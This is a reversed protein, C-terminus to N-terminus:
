ESVLQEMQKVIREIEDATLHRPASLINESLVTANCVTVGCLTLCDPSLTNSAFCLIPACAPSSGIREALFTDLATVEGQVQEIPSRHPRTGDLLIDGGSASVRGAWCKTEVPFVGTPGVVVHDIREGRRGCAFDHFVHYGGPLFALIAAVREEGRAGKFYANIRRFGARGTWYLYFGVTLLGISAGIRAPAYFALGAFFGILFFAPIVPLLIRLIGRERAQEGPEGHVTATHTQNM